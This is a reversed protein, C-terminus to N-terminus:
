MCPIEVDLDGVVYYYIVVKWDFNTEHETPESVGSAAGTVTITKQNNNRLAELMEALLENIYAVGDPTIPADTEVNLFDKVVAEFDMILFRSEPPNDRSVTVDVDTMTREDTESPDIRTVCFTIRSVRLTDLDSIDIELEELDDLLEQTTITESGSKDNISGRAEFDLRLQGEVPISLMVNDTEPVGPCKTGTFVLSLLLMGGMMLAPRRM